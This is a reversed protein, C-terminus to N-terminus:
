RDIFQHDTLIRGDADVTLFDFGVSAVTGTAREVMEWNLRVADHHGDAGPVARFVHTGPAVWTDHSEAVRAELEAHGRAQRSPTHHTAGPAFLAAIATRRAAPDPDNWVAVYRRALDNPDTM